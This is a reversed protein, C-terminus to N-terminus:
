ATRSTIWVGDPDTSYRALYFTRQKQRRADEPTLWFSLTRGKTAALEELATMVHKCAVGNHQSWECTCRAYITHGDEYRVTVLHADAPDTASEVLVQHKAVRVADLDRSTAQLQKIYKPKM